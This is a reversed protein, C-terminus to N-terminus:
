NGPPSLKAVRDMLHEVGNISRSLVDYCKEDSSKEVVEVVDCDVFMIRVIKTSIRLFKPLSEEPM